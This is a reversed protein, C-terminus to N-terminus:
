YLIGGWRWSWCCAFVDVCSSGRRRDISHPSDLSAGEEAGGGLRIVVCNLGCHLLLGDEMVLSVCPDSESM